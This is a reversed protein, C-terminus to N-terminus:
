LQRQLCVSTASDRYRGFRPIPTFGHRTYWALAAHQRLGTELRLARVGRDAAYAILPTILADAVGTGRAGPVVYCRKLEAFGEDQLEVGAIGVLDGDVTAGMLYVGAQELREASYGFTEEPTYGSGALEDTLADILGRVGPDTARVPVVQVSGAASTM